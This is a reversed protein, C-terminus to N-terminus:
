FLFEFEPQLLTHKPLSGNSFKSASTHLFQTSKIKGIKLLIPTLECKSHPVFIIERTVERKSFGTRLSIDIIRGFEAVVVSTWSMM